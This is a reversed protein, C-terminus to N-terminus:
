FLTLTGRTDYHVFTSYAKLGGPKMIGENILFLIKNKLQEPHWGPAVIDAAMGKLHFSRAAGGVKSNWYPSRYGSNVMIPVGLLTRLAQLNDALEQIAGRIQWPFDAGDRSAFENLNFNKTLQM